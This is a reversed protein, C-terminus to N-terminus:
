LARRGYDQLSGCPSLVLQWVQLDRARFAGACSLLYYAFMRVHRADWHFVNNQHCRIFNNYWAMLTKDYHIGINQWDEMIFEGALARSVGAFSPLVGHPFIYKAIWPDCCWRGQANGITHLLFLGEDALLSRVKKFFTRYNKRGVHEFMGVSVVRDFRGELERYDALLWRIDQGRSHATAYAHQQASITAATVRVGYEHTMYRALGGWGCGIDLVNMGPALGLKHCILEMKNVQAADLTQAGEWYGCSYNMTPGLMCAFMENDMDYHAEAVKRAGRLSQLNCVIYRLATLLSPLSCVYLARRGMGGRVLRYFLMDLAPCDWWGDMYAEGFGLSGQLVARAYLRADHVHIDWPRHGNIEVDCSSFYSSFLRECYM